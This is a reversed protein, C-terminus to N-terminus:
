QRAARRFKLFEDCSAHWNLSDAQCEADRRTAHQGMVEGNSNRIVVFIWGPKITNPEREVRFRHQKM